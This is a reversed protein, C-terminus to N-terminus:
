TEGVIRGERLAECVVTNEVEGWERVQDESYVVIDVSSGVGGVARRLRAAEEARSDVTREIVLFDLDSDPRAEGRGHSGFLIIKAPARVAALLRAAAQQITREDAM